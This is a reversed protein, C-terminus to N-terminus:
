DVDLMKDSSLFSCVTKEVKYEVANATPLFCGMSTYTSATKEFIQKNEACPLAVVSM